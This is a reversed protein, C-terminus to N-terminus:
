AVVWAPAIAWAWGWWAMAEGVVAVEELGLVEFALEVDGGDGDDLLTWRLFLLDRVGQALGANRDQLAVSGVGAADGKPVGEVPEGGELLAGM